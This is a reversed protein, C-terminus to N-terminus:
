QLSKRRKERPSVSATSEAVDELCVPQMQVAILRSRRRLFHRAPGQRRDQENGGRSDGLHSSCTPAPSMLAKRSNQKSSNTADRRSSSGKSRSKNWSFSFSLFGKRKEPSPNGPNATDKAPQAADAVNAVSSSKGNYFKSVAKRNNPLADQLKDMSDFAGRYSSQVEEDSEVEGCQLVGARSDSGPGVSSMGGAAPASLRRGFSSSGSDGRRGGESVIPM